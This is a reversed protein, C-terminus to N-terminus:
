PGTAPGPADIFRHYRGMWYPLLFFVGDSETRGDDGQVAAWPNQDTRTYCIEAPPLLRSTQLVEMVPARRLQLDERNSNDMTWRILDLPVDRLFALAGTLNAHEPDAYVAYLFEFFPNADARISDHWREFSMRYTQRLSADTELALLAPYAFALLETDIYTRWAPNLNPAELANQAYHHEEILGRYHRAYKDEGTVEHALKLFSLMEVSNIGREMAWDPDHNLREPAWVGWRTHRGDEDTLLYGNRILHDVIRAIQTRVRARDADDAALEYYIYYGFMHATIEDSSTDGKWRWQGDASPRWRLPVRKNRPDGAWEEAWDEESLSVNPDHVSQWDAPVVTRAIFGDIGTVQRLFELTDFAHKAAALAEPDGTAAYRYSEMALYVATYGGDNDDDEPASTSLDGPLRLRCKEVIGPPRIHRARLISDFQQAKAALTLNTQIWRSVGKGTAVWAAGNSDFVIHRVDDSLLWRRGHRVLWQENEFRAGGAGTGVWISGDPARTVSRVDGSPLGDKPSFRRNLQDKEFRLVGGLSAVWLETNPGSAIDRIGASLNDFDPTLYRGEGDRFQFLGMATAFWLTQDRGARIRNLYHTCGPDWTESKGSNVRYFGSPGGAIVLDGPCALARVPDDIGSVRLCAGDRLQYLGNWAAVWVSGSADVAVDNLPGALIDPAFPKWDSQSVSWEFLGARTAAWAHDDGDIALARVDNAAEGALPLPEHRQHMVPMDPAALLPAVGCWASAICFLRTLIATPRMEPIIRVM